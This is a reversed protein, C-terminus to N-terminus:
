REHPETDNEHDEAEHGPKINQLLERKGRTERKVLPAHLPETDATPDHESFDDAWRSPAPDRQNQETEEEDRFGTALSSSRKHRESEKKRITM